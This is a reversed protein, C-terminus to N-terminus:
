YEIVKATAKGKKVEIIWIKNYENEALPKYKNEKILLNALGPTTTNHGAVVITRANSSLLRNAFEDLKRHDYFQMQLWYPFRIKQALPRVTSRTRKFNTSYIADPKYKQITEVLRQARQEGEASLVPDPNEGGDSTDKEAHRLLIITMKRNQAFAENTSFTLLFLGLFLFVFIKM